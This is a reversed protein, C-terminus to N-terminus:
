LVMYSERGSGSRIAAAMSTAKRKEAKTVGDILSALQKGDRSAALQELEGAKGSDRLGKAIQGLGNM